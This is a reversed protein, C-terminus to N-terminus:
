PADETLRAKGGTPQGLVTSSGVCLVVTQAHGIVTTITYCGPCKVHMSYSSPSQVPRKKKLKRKEGPSPQLLDEALPM